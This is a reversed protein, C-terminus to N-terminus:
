FITKKIKLSYSYMKRGKSFSIQHLFINLLDFISDFGVEALCFSSHGPALKNDFCECKDRQKRIIKIRNFITHHKQM